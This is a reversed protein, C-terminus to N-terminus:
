AVGQGARAGEVARREATLLGDLSEKLEVTFAAKVRSLFPMMPGMPAVALTVADHLVQIGGLRSRLREFDLFPALLPATDETRGAKLVAHLQMAAAPAVCVAGSTFTAMGRAGIHDAVPTEGMGSAVLGVGVEALLGDLYADDAPEPCEVAYKVFSVAGEGVLRRLTVPKVYNARKVYLIVGHGLRDAIRRVGDGVGHSDSPFAVPLLMVNRIGAREVLPAQDMAKGFDPGLSAIVELEPTAVARMMELAEGYAGLGYHYLNANGGYLLARVGGAAIYRALALNPEPDVHLDETLAIPPVAVVTRAFDHPELM